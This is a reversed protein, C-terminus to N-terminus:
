GKGPEDEAPNLDAPSENESSTDEELAPLAIEGEKVSGSEITEGIDVVDLFTSLFAADRFEEPIRRYEYRVYEIGGFQTVTSYRSKSGVIGWLGKGLLHTGGDPLTVGLQPAKETVITVPTPAVASSTTTSQARAPKKAM